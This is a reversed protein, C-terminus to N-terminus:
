KKKNKAKTNVKAARQRATAKRIEDNIVVFSSERGRMAIVTGPPMGYHESMFRLNVLAAVDHDALTMKTWERSPGYKRYYGYANGYPPGVRDTQLPIFFIDPTLRFHFAIDLWSMQQVRLSIISAPAVHARAALFYVVPLDEDPCRYRERLEVVHLPPVNYYDSIALYFDQLKGDSVSAGLAVGRVQAVASGQVLVLGILCAFIGKM